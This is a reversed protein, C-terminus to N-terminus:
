LFSPAIFLNAMRPVTTNIITETLKSLEAMALSGTTIPDMEGKVPVL